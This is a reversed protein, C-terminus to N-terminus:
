NIVYWFTKTVKETPPKSLVKTNPYRLGDREVILSKDKNIECVTAKTKEGFLYFDVKDGINVKGM